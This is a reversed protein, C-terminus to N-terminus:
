KKINTRMTSWKIAPHNLIIEQLKNDDTILHPRIDGKERILNIFEQEEYQLPLIMSIQDTIKNLMNDAWNKLENNKRPLKQQRLVPLLKNRIDLLNYQLQCKNLKSIDITTMAMYVVFALRLKASDLQSHTFLYYTDFLDRSASRTFFASLKGAALEHIDLVPVSFEKEFHLKPKQQLCPWLPRRYMFNLDVEINGGQGLLSTYSWAMKGGAHQEPSSYLTFKKQHFIQKIADCIIKRDQLMKTRDVSGIYNLDIDVSLRPVNDFSFLNLATGGKLALNEKLYPIEMIHKLMSLLQHVKELMEPKYDLNKATKILAEKSSLM